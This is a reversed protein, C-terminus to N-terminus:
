HYNNRDILIVQLGSHRLKNAVKLGSFGGGVIVVRKKGNREINLSM